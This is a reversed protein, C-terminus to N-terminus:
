NKLKKMSWFQNDTRFHSQTVIEQSKQKNKEFYHRSVPNFYRWGVSFIHFILPFHFSSIIRQIPSLHKRISKGLYIDCFICIGLISDLIWVWPSCNAKFYTVYILLLGSCHASVSVCSLLCYVSSLRQALLCTSSLSIIPVAPIGLEVM